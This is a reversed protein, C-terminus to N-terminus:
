RPSKEPSTSNGSVSPAALSSTAPDIAPRANVAPWDTVVSRSSPTRTHTGTLSCALLVPTSATVTWSALGAITSCTSSSPM